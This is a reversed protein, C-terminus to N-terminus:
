NIVCPVFSPEPDHKQAQAAVWLFPLLSRTQEPPLTVAPHGHQALRWGNGTRVQPICGAYIGWFNNWM